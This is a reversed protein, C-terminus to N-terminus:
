CQRMRLAAVDADSYSREGARKTVGQLFVRSIQEGLVGTDLYLELVGIRGIKEGLHDCTATTLSGKIDDAEIVVDGSSGYIGTHQRLEIWRDYGVQFM